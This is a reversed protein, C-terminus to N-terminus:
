RIYIVENDYSCRRWGPALNPKQHSNGCNVSHVNSNDSNVSIIGSEKIAINASPPPPPPPGIPAQPPPLISHVLKPTVQNSQQNVVADPVPVPVAACTPYSSSTRIM